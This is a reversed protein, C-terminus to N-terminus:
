FIKFKNKLTKWCDGFLSTNAVIEYLSGVIVTAAVATGAVAKTTETKKNFKLKDEELDLSRKKLELETEKIRREEKAELAKNELETMKYDYDFLVKDDVNRGEEATEDDFIRDFIATKRIARVENDEKVEIGEVEDFEEDLMKNVDDAM